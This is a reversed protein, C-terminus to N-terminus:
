DCLKIDKVYTNPSMWSIRPCVLYGDSKLKYNVYLSTPFSLVISVIAISCFYKNFSDHHKPYRGVVNVFVVFVMYYLVLPFSFFTMFVSSSFTIKEDMLVLSILYESVIFMSFSMLSLIFIACIIHIIKRKNDM